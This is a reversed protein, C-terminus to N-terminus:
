KQQQVEKKESELQEKSTTKHSNSTDIDTPIQTFNKQNLSFELVMGEISQEVKSGEIEDNSVSNVEMEAAMDESTDELHHSHISVTTFQDEIDTFNEECGEPHSSSTSGVVSM